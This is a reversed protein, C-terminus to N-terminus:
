FPKFQPLFCLLSRKMLSAQQTKTQQTVENPNRVHIHKKKSVIIDKAEVSLSM